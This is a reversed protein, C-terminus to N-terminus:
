EVNAIFVCLLMSLNIIVLVVKPVSPNYQYKRSSPKREM